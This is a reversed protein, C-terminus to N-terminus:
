LPTVSTPPPFEAVASSSPKSVYDMNQIQSGKCPEVHGKLKLDGEVLDQIEILTCEKELEVYWQIHLRQTDPCIEPQCMFFRVASFFKMTSDNVQRSKLGKMYEAWSERKELTPFYLTGMFRRHRKTSGARPMSINWLHEVSTPPLVLSRSRGTPVTYKKGKISM